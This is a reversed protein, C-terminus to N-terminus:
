HRSGREPLKEYRGGLADLAERMVALASDVQSPLGEVGLEVHADGGQDGLYPLSFLRLVPFEAEIRRMLPMLQSEYLGFVQYASEIQRAEGPVPPFRAELVSDLMPWSMVPFGPFFWHGAVTFGPIRNYPNVIIESGEPFAGMQLREPTVADGFRARIEAEADPHVVLSVGLAAAMAQRTRDDPTGGIGGFSFVRAGSALTQRYVTILDELADGCCRAWNLRLGREALREIVRALHKDQRKGSLIEDGVIVVGIASM